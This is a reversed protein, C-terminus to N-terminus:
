ENDSEEGTDSVGDRQTHGGHILFDIAIDASIRLGTAM